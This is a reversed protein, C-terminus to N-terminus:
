DSNSTGAQQHCADTGPAEGKASVADGKGGTRGLHRGWIMFPANRMVPAGVWEEIEFGFKEYLGQGDPSAELIAPVGEKQAWDTGWQVLATGVGMRTYQPETGILALHLRSPWPAWIRMSSSIALDMFKAVFAHDISRDHFLPRWFREQLGFLFAEFATIADASIEPQHCLEVPGRGQILPNGVYGWKGWEKGPKEMNEREWVAMGVAKREAKEGAGEDGVVKGDKDVDLEAVLCAINPNLVRKILRATCGWIWDELFEQRYAYMLVKLDDHRFIRELM